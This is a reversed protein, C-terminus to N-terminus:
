FQRLWVRMAGPERNGWLFYPVLRVPVRERADSAAEDDAAESTTGSTTANTTGNTTGNTTAPATAPAPEPAAEPYPEPAAEPAVALETALTVVPQGWTTEDREERVGPLDAATLLLDDVPAGADQQEVCYVLPGRLVALTGRAADNHPHARVARVRQPLELVVTDGAAWERTLRLWGPEAGTGVREGNLHATAGRAWGPVRLALTRDGEAARDVTVTVRGEWPYDTRATVDLPASRLEADAYLALTLTSASAVALHDQFQAVWRVINPPCCPCGFWARRLPEGGSEAGSRQEHDPRRQLPNDYFFARGDVSTGVAFANFLVREVVDLVDARGTALFLRWGWQMTGIAACTEAYAREAPLEHRDGIAEDAHRSGLGGTLYLKAAVMDDWLRELQALPVPAEAEGELVLDTAGAALYVMRVAHGTVSPLDRLPVEDQFYSPPFIGHTLRGAGRRAVFLRAQTLYAPEGTERYLEVLAMEVEPHGCYLPEGAPGYREVALDAFRRAVALLRGDGLQRAAAVAAQILHGLNYLEHGWALDSWPSKAADRGQFYTGLYGDPAQAAEILAVSEAWFAEAEPGAAGRALESVLGELTKYVDTDLFPYRGRYRGPNDATLRRFNALNGARTLEALAHPLTADANRRQWRGLLGGVLRVQGSGLTRGVPGGVRVAAAGSAPGSASGASGASGAQPFPFKSM